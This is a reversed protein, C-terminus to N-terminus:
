VDSIDYRSDGDDGDYWDDDHAVDYIVDDDDDCKIFFCVKKCPPRNFANSSLFM